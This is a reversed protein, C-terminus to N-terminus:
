GMEKFEAEAKELWLGMGMQRMMEIGDSLYEKPDRATTVPGSRTPSRVERVLHKMGAPLEFTQNPPESISDM